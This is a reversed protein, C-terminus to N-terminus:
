SVTHAKRCWFSFSMAFNKTQTKSNARSQLEQLHAGDADITNARLINGSVSCEITVPSTFFIRLPFHSLDPNTPESSNRLSPTSRM